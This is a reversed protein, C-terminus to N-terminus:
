NCVVYKSPELLTFGGKGKNEKWAFFKWTNFPTLPTFLRNETKTKREHSTTRPDLDCLKPSPHFIPICFAGEEFPRDLSMYSYPIRSEAITDLISMQVLVLFAVPDSFYFFNLFLSVNQRRTPGRFRHRSPARSAEPPDLQVARYLQARLRIMSENPRFQWCNINLM